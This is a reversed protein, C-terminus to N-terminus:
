LHIDHSLFQNAPFFPRPVFRLRKRSQWELDLYKSSRECPASKILGKTIKKLDLSVRQKVLVYKNANRTTALQERQSFQWAFLFDSAM